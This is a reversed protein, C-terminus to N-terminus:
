AGSGQTASGDPRQHELVDTAFEDDRLLFAFTPLWGGLNMLAYLMAFAMGATTPTTFQRVAANYMDVPGGARDQPSVFGVDTPPAPETDTGIPSMGRVRGSEMMDRIAMLSQQNM